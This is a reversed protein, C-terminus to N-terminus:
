NGLSLQDSKLLFIAIIETIPLPELYTQIILFTDVSGNLEM